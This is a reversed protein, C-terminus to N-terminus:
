NKHTMFKKNYCLFITLIPGYKSFNDDFYVLADTKQFVRYIARLDHVDRMRFLGLTVTVAVTPMHLKQFVVLMHYAM